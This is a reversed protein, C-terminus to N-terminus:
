PSAEGIGQGTCSKCRPDSTAVMTLRDIMAAASAGSRARAGCAQRGHVGLIPSVLHADVDRGGWALM